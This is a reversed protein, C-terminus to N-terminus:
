AREFPTTGGHDFYAHEDLGRYKRPGEKGGSRTISQLGVPGKANEASFNSQLLKLEQVMDINPNVPSGLYFGPDSVGIGDSVVFM